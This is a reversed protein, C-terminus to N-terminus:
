VFVVPAATTRVIAAVAAATSQRGPATATGAAAPVRRRGSIQVPGHLHADPAAAGRGPQRRAARGTARVSPSPARVLQAVAHDESAPVGDRPLVHARVAPEPGTLEPVRATEQTKETDGAYSLPVRNLM